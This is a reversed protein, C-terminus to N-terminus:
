LLFVYTEHFACNRHLCPRGRTFYLMHYANKWLTNWVCAGYAVRLFM